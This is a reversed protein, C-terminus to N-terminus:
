YSQLLEQQTARTVTVSAPERICKQANARAFAPELARGTQRSNLHASMARVRQLRRSGGTVKLQARLSRSGQLMQQLQQKQQYHHQLLKHKQQRQSGLLSQQLVSCQAFHPVFHMSQAAFTPQFLARPSSSRLRSPTRVPTANTEILRTRTKARSTFASILRTDEPTWRTQGRPRVSNEGCSQRESKETAQNKIYNGATTAFNNVAEINEAHPLWQCCPCGEM